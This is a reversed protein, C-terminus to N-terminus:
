AHNFFSILMKYLRQSNLLPMLFTTKWSLTKGKIPYLGRNKMENILLKKEENSLDKRKVLSILCSVLVSNQHHEYFAKLKPSIIAEEAFERINHAIIFESKYSHIIKKTSKERDISCPNYRYFYSVNDTFMIRKAFAYMRLNFDVDEHYINPTFRLRNSNLFDRLYLNTCVSGIHVGHLLAHEGSIINKKAFPQKFDITELGDEHQVKMQSEAVDLNKNEALTLLDRLVNPLLEDDSDVFMVYKGNANNLGTNRAESLGRNNQSIVIINKHSLSIQYAIDCSSDTSGDNVLIIEYESTDIDQNLLSSVCQELYQEVNYIPVIISLRIM